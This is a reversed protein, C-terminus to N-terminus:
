KPSTRSFVFNTVRAAGFHKLTRALEHLTEGTTMVDDIVGIHCNRILTIAHHPVTFAKHLNRRRQNPHLQTQAQTNRQRRVLDYRLPINLLSSLPKAIELAQNFGRETLRQMGLPVATLVDPLNTKMSPQCLIAHHLMRAFAPALALHANFKLALVLQDAPAAYDIAAITADFARAQKLCEGCQTSQTNNFIELSNACQQCRVPYRSFYHQWCVHCIIQKDINGCLACCSPISSLINVSWHLLRSFTM